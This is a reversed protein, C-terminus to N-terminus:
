GSIKLHLDSTPISVCPLIEDDNIWAMPDKLYKVDGSIKKCRCAGCYGDRCQYALEINQAELAELLTPAHTFNFEVSKSNDESIAVSFSPKAMGDFEIQPQFEAETVYKPPAIVAPQDTQINDESSTPELQFERTSLCSQDQISHAKHQDNEIILNKGINM